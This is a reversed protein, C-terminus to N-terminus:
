ILMELYPQMVRSVRCVRAAAMLEPLTFKRARWGERLAEIALDLGLKRRYKFCDAVTKAPTTVRLTVNGSHVITVGHCLAAGSFRVFRMPPHTIRPQWAKNDIAMWVVRPSQTGIAHFALATGLCLIGHPVRLCALEWDHRENIEADARAYVGRTRRVLQGTRVLRSLYSTPLRQRRLDIPRLSGKARALKELMALKTPM